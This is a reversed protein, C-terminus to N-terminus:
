DHIQPRIRRFVYFQFFFILFDNLDWKQILGALQSQQIAAPKILSRSARGRDKVPSTAWAYVITDLWNAGADGGKGKKRGFQCFM